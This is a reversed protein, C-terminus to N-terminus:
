ANGQTGLKRRKTGSVGARRQVRGSPSVIEEDDAAQSAQPSAATDDSNGDEHQIPNEEAEAAIRAEQERQQKQRALRKQRKLQKERHAAQAEARALEAQVEQMKQEYKAQVEREISERMEDPFDDEQAPMQVTDQLIQAEAEADLQDNVDENPDQQANRRPNKRAQGTQAREIDAFRSDIVRKETEREKSITAVDAALKKLTNATATARTRTSAELSDMKNVLVKNSNAAIGLESNTRKVESALKETSSVLSTVNDSLSSIQSAHTEARQAQQQILAQTGALSHSLEAIRNDIPHAIAVEQSVEPQPTMVSCPTNALATSAVAPAPVVLQNSPTGRIHNLIEQNTQQQQQVIALVQDNPAPAPAPPAATGTAAAAATQRERWIQLRRAAEEDTWPCLPKNHDEDACRFCRPDSRSRTNRYGGRGGRGYGRGYQAGKGYQAQSYDNQYAQMQQGAGAVMVPQHGPAYTQQMPQMGPMQVPQWMMQQQQQMPVNSQRREHLLDRVTDSGVQELFSPNNSPNM